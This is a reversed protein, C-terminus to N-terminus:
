TIIPSFTLTMNSSTGNWSTAALGTGNFNASSSPQAPASAQVWNNGSGTRGTWQAPAFQVDGIWYEFIGVSPAYIFSQQPGSTTIPSGVDPTIVIQQLATGSGATSSFAPSTWTVCPTAGFNCGSSPHYTVGTASAGGVTVSTIASVAGANAL